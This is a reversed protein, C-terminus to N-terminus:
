QMLRWVSENFFQKLQLSEHSTVDVKLCSSNCETLTLIVNRDWLFTRSILVKEDKFQKEYM